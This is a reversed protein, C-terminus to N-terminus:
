ATLYRVIVIGSAGPRGDFTGSNQGPYAPGGSGTNAPPSDYITSFRRARKGGEAYTSGNLWTRGPGITESNVAPTGGAGGGGGQWTEDGSGSNSGAYGEVPTYSGANGSGGGSGWAGGGGSGGSNAGSLQFTRGFGGGSSSFGFASSNTGNAEFAGGAGVTVAYSAAAPILEIERYGGAGGSGGSVSARVGGGAGGGAVVLCQVTKEATNKIVQFTGSSTFTHYTYGGSQIVTGGTAEFVGRAVGATAFFGLGFPM